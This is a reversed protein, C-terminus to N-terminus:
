FTLGYDLEAWFGSQNEIGAIENIDIANSLRLILDVPFRYGLQTLLKFEIGASRRTQAEFTDRLYFVQDGVVVDTSQFDGDIVAYDFFLATHIQRYYFPLLGTGRFLSILPLRWELSQSLFQQAAETNRRYGRLPVDFGTIFPAQTANQGLGSGWTTELKLVHHRWFLPLYEAYQLILLTYDNSLREELNRLEQILAAEQEETIGASDPNEALVANLADDFDEGDLVQITPDSGWDEPFRILNFSVTRGFAESISLPYHGLNSFSGFLTVGNRGGVFTRTNYYDRADEFLPDLSELSQDTNLAVQSLIKRNVSDTFDDDDFPAQYSYIWGGGIEWHGGFQFSMTASADHVTEWHRPVSLGFPYRRPLFSSTFTLTPRWRDNVYVLQHYTQEQGQALVAQYAHHRLPDEGATIVGWAYGDPNEEAYVFWFQSTLQSLGSYSNSTEQVEPTQSLSNINEWESSFQWTSSIGPLPQARAQGPKWPMYGLVLGSDTFNQFYLRQSQPALVPLYAGGLVHTIPQLQQSDFSYRYLNSVGTHDSSFVLAQGDPEWMPHAQLHGELIHVQETSTGPTTVIISTAGQRDTFSYALRKGQHDWQPTAVRSYRYNTLSRMRTVAFPSDSEDNSAQPTLRYQVLNQHGKENHVAVLSQGDPAIAIDNLRGKETLRHPKRTQLDLVYLERYAFPRQNFTATYFLYRPNPHWAASYANFPGLREFDGSERDWLVMQKGWDGSSATFVIQSEDPSLAFATQTHGYPIETFPTFSQSSLDRIRQQQQSRQHEVFQEYLTSLPEGNPGVVAHIGLFPPWRAITHNIDRIADKPQSSAWYNLFYAGYVYRAAHQGPMGPKYFDLQDLHLFQNQHAAMRFIMESRSSRGRGSRTLETEFYVALGEWLWLPAFNNPSNLFLFAGSANPNPASGPRGFVDRIVGSYGTATDLHLIHVYEHLVLARLWDRDEYEAIETSIGPASPVIWLVPYPLSAAYGNQDDMTDSVVIHVKDAPEWDLIPSLLRHSEEAYRAALRALEGVGTHYHVYFHETEFSSWELGKITDFVTVAERAPPQASLFCPFALSFIWAIFAFASLYRM